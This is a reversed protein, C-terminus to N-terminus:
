PALLQIMTLLCHSLKTHKAAKGLSSQLRFRKLGLDGRQLNVFLDDPGNKRGNIARNSVYHTISGVGDIKYTLKRYPFMSDDDIAPLNFKKDFLIARKIPALEFHDLVVRLSVPNMNMFKQFPCRKSCEEANTSDDDCKWGQWFTRRICKFCEPCVIGKWAIRSTSVDPANEDLTSLLDPVLSYHPQVAPDPRHRFFLFDSNFTLEGPPPADDIKWFEDCGPNLCMWGENYLLLSEKSCIQCALSAPKTEFDREKLSAPASSDKLAWWSKECLSLKEFRVKVGHNQGIKEFWVNTVRFWDMINYRHPLERNLIKNKSGTIIILLLLPLAVNPLMGIVLGVALKSDMSGIISQVIANELDQNKELTLNGESDKTCCGGSICYVTLNQLFLARLV